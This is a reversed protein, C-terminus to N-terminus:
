KLVKDFWMLHCIQNSHHQLLVPLETRSWWPIKSRFGNLILFKCHGKNSSVSCGLSQELAMVNPVSHKTKIWLTYLFIQARLVLILFCRSSTGPVILQKRPHYSPIKVWSSLYAGFSQNVITLVLLPPAETSSRISITKGIIFLKQIRCILHHLDGLHGTFSILNVILQQESIKKFM